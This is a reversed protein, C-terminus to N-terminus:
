TPLNVPKGHPTSLYAQEWAAKIRRTEAQGALGRRDLLSELTELWANYYDNGGDLARDAGHRKLTAGFAAAWDTWHFHGADSLAVTLAFLQAQWPDDFRSPTEPDTM